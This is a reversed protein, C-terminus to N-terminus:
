SPQRGSHPDAGSATEIRTRGSYDGEALSAYILSVQRKTEQEPTQLNPSILFGWVRKPNVEVRGYQPHRLFAIAAIGSVGVPIILVIGM